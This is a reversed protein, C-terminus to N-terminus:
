QSTIFIISERQTIGLAVIREAKATMIRGNQKISKLGGKRTMATVDDTMTSGTKETVVGVAHGQNAPGCGRGIGVQDIEIGVIKAAAVIRDVFTTVDAAMASGM